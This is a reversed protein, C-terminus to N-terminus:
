YLLSFSNYQVNMGANADNEKNQQPKQHPQKQASWCKNNSFWGVVDDNVHQENMWIIIINYNIFISYLLISISLYISLYIFYYKM